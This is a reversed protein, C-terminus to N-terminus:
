GPLSFSLKHKISFDECEYSKGIVALIACKCVVDKNMNNIHIEIQANEQQTNWKEFIPMSVNSYISFTSSTMRRYLWAQWTVINPKVSGIDLNLHPIIAGHDAVLEIELNDKVSLLHEKTFVEMTDVFDFMVGGTNFYLCKVLPSEQFMQIVQARITGPHIVHWQIRPNYHVNVPYNFGGDFFCATLWCIKPFLRKSFDDVINNNKFDDNAFYSSISKLLADPSYPCLYKKDINGIYLNETTRKYKYFFDIRETTGYVPISELHFPVEKTLFHPYIREM